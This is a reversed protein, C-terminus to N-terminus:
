ALQARSERRVRFRFLVLFVPLLAGVILLSGLPFQPTPLPAPTFTLSGDSGLTVAVTGSSGASLSIPQTLTTCSSTETWTSSQTESWTSGTWTNTSWTTPSSCQSITIYDSTVTTTEKGSITSFYYVIWNGSVPRDITITPCNTQSPLCFSYHPYESPIQNVFDTSYTCTTPDSGPFNSGGKCGYFKGDPDQVLLAIPSHGKLVLASASPALISLLLLCAVAGVCM